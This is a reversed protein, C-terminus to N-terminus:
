FGKGAPPLFPNARGTAPNAIEEAPMKEEPAPQTYILLLMEATVTEQAPSSYSNYVASAVSAIGQRSSGAAGQADAQFKLNRIESLNALNELYSILSIVAPYTGQLTIEVPLVLVYGLDVPEAPKLKRIQVGNKEALLGFQVLFLGDQMQTSFRTLLKELRARSKELAAKEQKLAEEQAELRSLMEGAEKLRAKKDRYAKLQPGFLLFYTVCALTTVVAVLVMIKGRYNLSNLM